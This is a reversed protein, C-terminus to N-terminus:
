AAAGKQQGQAKVDTAKLRAQYKRTEIRGTATIDAGEDFASFTKEDVEVEHQMGIEGITFSQGYVTGDKQIVRKRMLRGALDFHSHMQM